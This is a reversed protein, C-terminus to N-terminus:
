MVHTIIYVKTSEVIIQLHLCKARQAKECKGVVCGCVENNKTSMKHIYFFLAFQLKLFDLM